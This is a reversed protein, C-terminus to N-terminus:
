SAVIGYLLMSGYIISVSGVVISVIKRLRGKGLISLPYNILLALLLMGMVVGISFIIVGGVLLELSRVGLSAVLLLLLEDNSLLGQLTGIGLLPRHVHLRHVLGHLPGIHGIRHSHLHSHLKGGLHRHPHEHSVPRTLTFFIGAAGVAVLLVSTITELGILIGESLFGQISIIYYVLTISAATITHGAAWSLSMHAAESFGRSRALFNSVVLVHDADYAHKFGMAFALVIFFTLLAGILESTERLDKFTKRVL